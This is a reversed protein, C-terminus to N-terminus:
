EGFMGSLGLEEDKNLISNRSTDREIKKFVRKDEENSYMPLGATKGWESVEKGHFASFFAKAINTRLKASSANMIESEFTSLAQPDMSPLQSLTEFPISSSANKLMTYIDIILRLADPHNSKQYGDHLVQLSAKLLSDGLFFHTERNSVLAPILRICTLIALHCSSTDKVSLLLLLAETWSPVLQYVCFNVLSSNKFVPMVGKELNTVSTLGFISQWLDGVARTFLRLIKENVVEDSVDHADAAEYEEDELGTIVSLEASWALKIKENLHKALDPLFPGLVAQFSAEPCNLIFPTLAHTLLGRWHYLNIHTSFFANM